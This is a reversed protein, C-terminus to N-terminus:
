DCRRQRARADIRELDEFFGPYSVGPSTRETLRVAAGHVTGLVAFAMAMRHDGATEVVGRPPAATGAVVLDEGEVAAETGVARLNAALLGLRDSEKVRLEGVSRFVTDGTARSALIALLPVEDILSPIEDARVETGRLTSPRVVLEGVPEGGAVRAAQVAVPAGMRELVRLYGIRTPNLGVDQLTLAGGDALLGAGVLFAASSADGPVDLELDRLARLWDAAAGLHVVTGRQALPAGLARLMRETHDRSKAPEDVEVSAGGVLGAFLLATKVQASAVPLRWALPALPGGRIRLPLGDRGEDLIVAGMRRLPETVRRMPRRRLSRDGTLRAEFARGALLGLLLRATTGSNGCHLTGDPPRWRGGRLEVARGVRLPGVDVGLQRLVRASSRADAATLAGRITSTGGALAALMLARHTISKDGPVRLTGAVKM